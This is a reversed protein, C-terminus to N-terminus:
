GNEAYRRRTLTRVILEMNFHDGLLAIMTHESKALLRVGMVAVPIGSCRLENGYRTLQM